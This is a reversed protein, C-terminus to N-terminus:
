FKTVDGLEPIHHAFNDLKKQQTRSKEGRLSTRFSALLSLVQDCKTTVEIETAFDEHELCLYKIAFELQRLKSLIGSPCIGVKELWNVYTRIASPSLLSDLDCVSTNVFLSIKFCGFM